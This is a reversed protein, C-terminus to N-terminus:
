PGSAVGSAPLSSASRRRAAELCGTVAALLEPPKFPKQLQSVAGLKMAMTLFDPGSDPAMPRGSIVIIPTLPKQQHVLRMTEFGDMGPMFIDLFLLDFDGSQFQALGNRGDSATVVSHGARELLLRITLQVASDDDVILIKALEAKEWGPIM